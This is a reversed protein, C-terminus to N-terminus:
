DERKEHPLEMKRCLIFSFDIYHDMKRLIHNEPVLEEITVIDMENQREKRSQFM